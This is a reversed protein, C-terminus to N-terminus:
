TGVKGLSSLSYVCAVDSVERWNFFFFWVCVCV